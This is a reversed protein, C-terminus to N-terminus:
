RGEGTGFLSRYNALLSTVSEWPNYDSMKEDYCIANMSVSELTDPAVPKTVNLDYYTDTPRGDASYFVRSLTKSTAAACDFQKRSLAYDSGYENTKPFINAVWGTATIGTRRISGAEVAVADENDAYIIRWEGAMAPAALASVAAVLIMLRM